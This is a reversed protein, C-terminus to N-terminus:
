NDIVSVSRCPRSRSIRSPTAPNLMIFMMSSDTATQDPAVSAVRSRNWRIEAIMATGVTAKEPWGKKRLAQAPTLACRRSM